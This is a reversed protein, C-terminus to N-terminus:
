LFVNHAIRLYECCFRNLSVKILLFTLTNNPMGLTTSLSRKRIKIDFIQGIIIRALAYDRLEEKNYVTDIKQLLCLFLKGASSQFDIRNLAFFVKGIQYLITHSCLVLFAFQLYGNDIDLLKGLVAPCESFIRIVDLHLANIKNVFRVTIVIGFATKQFIQNRAILICDFYCQRTCGYDALSIIGFINKTIIDM